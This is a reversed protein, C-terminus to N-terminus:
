FIYLTNNTIQYDFQKSLKLVNLIYELPKNTFRGTYKIKTLGPNRFVVAIGFQKQIKDAIVEFPDNEFTLDGLPSTYVRSLSDPSPIDVISLDCLPPKSRDGRDKLSVTIKQSPRLVIQKEPQDKLQVEIKGKILVAEFQNNIQDSRLNFITGLVKLDANKTHVIFPNLSDHRVDFLAEGEFEVKRNSNSFDSNYFLRSNEKLYVITGDPLEVKSNSGPQAFVKYDKLKEKKPILFFSVAWGIIGILCAASLVIRFYFLFRNKPSKPVSKNFIKKQLELWNRTIMTSKEPGPSFDEDSLSGLSDSVAKYFPNKEMYHSLEMEEVFTLENNHKKNLLIVFRPDNM